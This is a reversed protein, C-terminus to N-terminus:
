KGAGSKKKSVVTLSHDDALRFLEDTKFKPGYNVKKPTDNIERNDNDVKALDMEQEYKPASRGDDKGKADSGKPLEGQKRKSLDIKGDKMEIACRRKTNTPEAM